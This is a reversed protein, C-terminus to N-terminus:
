NAGGQGAEGGSGAGGANPDPEFTFLDANLWNSKNSDIRVGITCSGGEVEIGELFVPSWVADGAPLVPTPAPDETGCDTAYLEVSNHGAGLNFYGKLVYTGDELGEITQHLDVTFADEAHWTSFEYAGDPVSAGSTPPQVFAYRPPNMLAKAPSVVWGVTSNTEFSGNVLEGTAGTGGGGGKGASGGSPSGGSSSGGSSSGGPSKGAGSSSGATEGGEGTDSGAVASTGASSTGGAGGSSSGGTGKQLYDFDQVSCGAALLLVLQATGLKSQASAARM